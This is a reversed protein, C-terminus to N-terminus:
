ITDIILYEYFRLAQSQLLLLNVCDVTHVRLSTGNPTVCYVNEAASCYYLVGILLAVVLVIPQAMM